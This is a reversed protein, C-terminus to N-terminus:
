DTFKILCNMIDDDDILNAFDDDNLFRFYDEDNNQEVIQNHIKSHHAKLAFKTFFRKDCVKCEHNKGEVHRKM